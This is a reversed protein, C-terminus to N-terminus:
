VAIVQGSRVMNVQLRRGSCLVGGEAATSARLRMEIDIRVLASRILTADRYGAVTDANDDAESRATVNASHPAEIRM